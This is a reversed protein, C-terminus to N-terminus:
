KKRVVIRMGEVNLVVLKSGKEIFDGETVVDYKQTNELAIGAPRLDTLALLEKGILSVDSEKAVYGDETKLGSDLVLRNLFLLKNKFIYINVLYLFVSLIASIMLIFSIEQTSKNVMVLSTFLTVIGIFGLIGGPVFMEMVILTISAIFLLLVLINLGSSLSHIAVYIALTIISTIGYFNFKKSFLQQCFTLFMLILLIWDLYFINNINLM